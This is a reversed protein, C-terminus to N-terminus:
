SGGLAESISIESNWAGQLEEAAQTMFPRPPMRSTGFQVYMAYFMYAIVAYEGPGLREVGINQSLMGTEGVPAYGSALDRLQYAIERAKADYASALGAAVEGFLNQQM